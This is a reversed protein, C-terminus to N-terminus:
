VQDSLRQQVCAMCSKHEFLIDTHRGRRHQTRAVPARPHIGEDVQALPLYKQHRHNLDGCHDASRWLFSWWHGSDKHELDDATVYAKVDAEPLSLALLTGKEHTHAPETGSARRVADWEHGRRPSKLPSGM